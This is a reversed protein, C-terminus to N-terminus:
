SKVQGGRQIVGCAIRSGSNGSPNSMQDDADAHIVLATGNPGFLSNAGGAQLSVRPDVASYSATGSADVQLNPLDGAHAGRPNDLGHERGAPNFHDGASTFGPPECRGVEHIHIGHPGPPLGRAQLSIRVGGTEQTFMAVGVPDGAADMIAASATGVQQAPAPGGNGLAVAGAAALGVISVAARALLPSAPM